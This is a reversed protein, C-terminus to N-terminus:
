VWGCIGAAIVLRANMCSGGPNGPLLDTHHLPAAPTHCHRTLEKDWTTCPSDTQGHDLFCGQILGGVWLTRSLGSHPGPAKQQFGVCGNQAAPETWCRLLNIHHISAHEGLQQCHYNVLGLHERIALAVRDIWGKANRTCLDWDWCWHGQGPAPPCPPCFLLPQSAHDAEDLSSHSCCSLSLTWWCHGSM